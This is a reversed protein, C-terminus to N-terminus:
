NETDAATEASAAEEEAADQEKPSVFEIEICNDDEECACDCECCEKDMKCKTIFKYVAFAIAAIVVIVGIIALVTKMKNCSKEEEAKKLKTLLENMKMM